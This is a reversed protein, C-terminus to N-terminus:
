KSNGVQRRQCLITRTRQAPIRHDGCFGTYSMHNCLACRKWILGYGHQAAAGIQRNQFGTQVVYKATNKPRSRAHARSGPDLCPGVDGRNAVCEGKPDLYPGFLLRSLRKNETFDGCQQETVTQPSVGITWGDGGGALVLELGHGITQRFNHGRSVESQFRVIEDKADAPLTAAACLLLATLAVHVREVM